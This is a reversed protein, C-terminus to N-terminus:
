SIQDQSSKQEIGATAFAVLQDLGDLFSPNEVPLGMPTHFRLLQIMSGVTFHFRWRLVISDVQPQAACLANLFRSFTQEFESELLPKTLTEPEGHVRGILSTLTEIREGHEQQYFPEFFARVIDEVSAIAASEELRDLAELRAQSIPQMRRHFVAALLGSKSGFHYHTAALNVGAEQAIARLSTAAFGHEIILGEAADLIKERTTRSVDPQLSTDKM